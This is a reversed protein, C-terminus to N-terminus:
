IHINDRFVGGCMSDDSSSNDPSTTYSRAFFDHYYLSFGYGGVSTDALDRLDSIPAGAGYKVQYNDISDAASPM